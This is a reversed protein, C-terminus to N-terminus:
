LCFSANAILVSLFCTFVKPFSFYQLFAMEFADFTVPLGRETEKKFM